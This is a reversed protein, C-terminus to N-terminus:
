VTPECSIAFVAPTLLAVNYLHHSEFSSIKNSAHKSCMFGTSATEPVPVHLSRVGPSAEFSPVHLLSTVTAQSVAASQVTKLPGRTRRLAVAHV